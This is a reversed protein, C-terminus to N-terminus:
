GDQPGANMRQKLRNSSRFSVVRRAKIEAEVQTNPNRGIRPEKDHLIFRGFNRIRVVEGKELCKAVEELVQDVLEAAFQQSVGLREFIENALGARTLTDKPM